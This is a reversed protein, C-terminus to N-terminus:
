HGPGTWRCPTCATFTGWNVIQIRSLRHQGPNLTDGLPLTMEISM